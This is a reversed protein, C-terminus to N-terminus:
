PTGRSLLPYTAPGVRDTRGDIRRPTGGANQARGIWALLFRAMGRATKRKTPNANLWALAKRAESQVSVGPYAASWEDVQSQVLGWSAPTGACPFVMLPVEPERTPKAPESSDTIEPTPDPRSGPDPDPDPDPSALVKGVGELQKRTTPSNNARVSHIRAKERARTADLKARTPNYELFDHVQYGIATTHWLGIATLEEAIESINKCGAWAAIIDLDGSPFQGDNESQACYVMSMLHVLRGTPSALRVKRNIGYGDDVKLWTMVLVEVM